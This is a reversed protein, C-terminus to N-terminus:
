RSNQCAAMSFADLQQGSICVTTQASGTQADLKSYVPPAKPELIPTLESEQLKQTVESDKEMMILLCGAWGTVACTAVTLAIILLSSKSPVDTMM